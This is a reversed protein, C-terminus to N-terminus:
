HDISYVWLPWKKRFNNVGKWSRKELEAMWLQLQKAVTSTVTKITGCSKLAFSKVSSLCICKLYVWMISISTFFLCQQTKTMMISYISKKLQLHLDMGIFWDYTIINASILEKHIYQIQLFTPLLFQLDHYSSIYKLYYKYKLITWLKDM